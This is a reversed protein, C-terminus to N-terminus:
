VPTIPIFRQQNVDPFSPNNIARNRQQPLPKNYLNHKGCLESHKAVIPAIPSGCIKRMASTTHTYSASDRAKHRIPLLCLSLFVSSYSCLTLLMINHFLLIGINGTWLVPEAIKKKLKACLIKAPWLSIKKHNAKKLQGECVFSTCGISNDMCVFSVNRAWVDVIPRHISPATTEEPVSHLAAGVATTVLGRCFDYTAVRKSAAVYHHVVTEYPIVFFFHQLTFM